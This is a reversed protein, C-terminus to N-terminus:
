VLIGTVAFFHIFILIKNCYFVYLRVKPNRGSYLAAVQGMVAVERPGASKDVSYCM